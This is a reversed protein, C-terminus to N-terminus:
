RRVGFGRGRVERRDCVWGAVTLGAPALGILLLALGALVNERYSTDLLAGRFGLWGLLVGGPVSAVAVAGFVITEVSARAM